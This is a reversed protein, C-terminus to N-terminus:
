GKKRPRPLNYLEMRTVLTQRAIGLMRAAATQNWVCQEPADLIRRREAQADLVRQYPEARAVATTEGTPPLDEM